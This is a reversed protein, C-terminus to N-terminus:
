IFNDCFIELEGRVIIFVYLSLQVEERRICELVFGYM